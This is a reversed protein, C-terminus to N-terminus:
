PRARQALLRDLSNAFAMRDQQSFPPPGGTQVGSTRMTEMFDRMNLRQRINEKTYLEGRPNIATAGKDVCDSALPIDATVVIDDRQIKEVIHGDAEDFGSSVVIRSIWKSPPVAVPRNAVLICEIQVREAARFLITKIVNPCADADVWLKM